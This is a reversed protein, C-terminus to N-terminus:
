FANLAAIRGEKAKRLAIVKEALPLGRAANCASKYDDDIKNLAKAEEPHNTAWGSMIKTRGKVTNLVTIM